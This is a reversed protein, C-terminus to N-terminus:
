EDDKKATKPQNKLYDRASKLMEKDKKSSLKKSAKQYELWASDVFGFVESQVKMYVLYFITRKPISKGNVASSENVRGTEEIIKCGMGAQEGLMRLAARVTSEGRRAVVRPIEWKDEDMSKTVFWSVKGNKSKRYVLAAGVYIQNNVM